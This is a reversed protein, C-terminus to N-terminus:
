PDKTSWPSSEFEQQGLFPGNGANVQYKDYFLNWRGPKKPVSKATVIVFTDPYKETQGIFCERVPPEDGRRFRLLLSLECPTGFGDRIKKCLIGHQIISPVNAIPTIYHLEKLDSRKM